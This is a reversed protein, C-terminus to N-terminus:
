GLSTIDNSQGRALLMLQIRTPAVSECPVQPRVSSDSHPSDRGSSLRQQASLEPNTPWVRLSSQCKKEWCACRGGGSNKGSLSSSQLGLEHSRAESSSESLTLHMYLVQSRLAWSIFLAIACWSASLIEKQLPTSSTKAAYRRVAGSCEKLLAPLAAIFDPGSKQKWPVPPFTPKSADATGASASLGTPNWQSIGSTGPWM